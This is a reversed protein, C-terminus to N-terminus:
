RTKLFTIEREAEADPGHASVYQEMLRLATQFEGKHEYAVAQNYLLESVEGGDPASLGLSFYEIAGDWNGEAARCLGMRNYLLASEEGQERATEYLSMADKTAGEAEMAAGAALLAKVRGPATGEPDLQASKKYDELAGAYDGAEARSACRLNYYEPRKEDVQILIDYTNEAGEFDGSLYEAEGRYKLVDLEFRGVFGGSVDLAQGFAEKAEEYNGATLAEIGAERFSYKDEKKGCGAPLLLFLAFGLALARYGNKKM